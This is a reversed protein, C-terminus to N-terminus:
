SSAISELKDPRDCTHAPLGDGRHGPRSTTGIGRQRIPSQGRFPLSRRSHSTSRTAAIREEVLLDAVQSLVTKHMLRIVRRQTDELQRLGAVLWRLCLAPHRALERLLKVREFRFARVPDVTQASSMYPTGRFM